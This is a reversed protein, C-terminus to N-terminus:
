LKVTELKLRIKDFHDNIRQEENIDRVTFYMFCEGKKNSTSVNKVDFSKLMKNHTKKLVSSTKFKYRVKSM